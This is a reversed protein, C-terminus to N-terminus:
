VTDCSCIEYGNDEVVNHVEDPISEVDPYESSVDESMRFTTRVFVLELCDGSTANFSFKRSNYTVTNDFSDFSAM